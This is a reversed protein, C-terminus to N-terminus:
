RGMYQIGGPPDRRGADAESQITIPVVLQVKDGFGDCIVVTSTILRHQLIPIKRRANVFEMEFDPIIVPAGADREIVGGKDVPHGYPEANTIGFIVIM